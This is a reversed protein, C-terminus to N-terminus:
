GSRAPADQRRPPEDIPKTLDIRIRAPGASVRFQVQQLPEVELRGPGFGDAGVDVEVTAPDTARGKGRNPYTVVMTAETKNSANLVRYEGPRAVFVAFVDGDVLRTADWVKRPKADSRMLHVQPTEAEMLTGGFAVAGEPHLDFRSLVEGDGRHGLGPVAVREGDFQISRAVARPSAALDAAARVTLERTRTVERAKVFHVVYDGPERMQHVVACNGSPAASDFSTQTLRTLDALDM